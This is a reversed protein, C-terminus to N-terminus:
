IKFDRFYGLDPNDLSGTIAVRDLTVNFFECSTEPLLTCVHCAAYNLGEFGQNKSVICLPDSSCWKAKEIMNDFINEINESDIFQEILGGLSGESDNTSVYILVGNMENSSNNEYTSYIKEKISAENYGCKSSIEKILLHSFTHLLVYQPSFRRNELYSKKLVSYMQNYRDGIRKEWNNLMSKDFEIFIGEGNLKVAPYYKKLGNQSLKALKPDNISVGNWPKVRTFGILAEVETLKDVLVIKNIYRNYKEPVDVEFSTFEGDCDDKPSTLEAYELEYINEETLRNKNKRNETLRVYADYLMKPTIDDTVKYAISQEIELMKDKSNNLRDIYPAIITEAKKSWPPINLASLKAPFYISSSSRPRTKLISPCNKDTNPNELWPSYGRCKYDRLSNEAFANAMFNREGCEKCEVILSNVDARDGVNYMKMKPVKGDDCKSCKKGKHAWWSYPFDEIHGHECIVVFRSPVLDRKSGCVMCKKPNKQYKLESYHILSHCNTCYMYEPFKYAPIDNTKEFTFKKNNNYKPLLFFDVGLLRQLNENNIKFERNNDWTWNDTGAIMVTEDVFDVIAGCGFTSVLQSIRVDGVNKIKNKNNNKNKPKIDFMGMSDGKELIYTQHIILM